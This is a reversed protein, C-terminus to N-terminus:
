KIFEAVFEAVDENAMDVFFHDGGDVEKISVNAVEGLAQLRAPLEPVVDDESGVIVLTPKHATKLLTPTDFEPKVQYYDAFAAATVEAKECYIFNTDKMMSDGKGAAVLDTAQKLVPELPASFAKEYDAASQQEATAPALLIVKEIMDSDKANAYWAIQNGGRSHGMISVKSVGQAKLWNMWVDIEEIADSHKHTHPTACDYEGHRDNLGLSLNMSLSSIGEKALNEQLDAYTSRGNHTLTGHLLLLVHDGYSDGDAYVLNANLTQGAITQKVEDAQAMGAFGLSAMLLALPLKKM